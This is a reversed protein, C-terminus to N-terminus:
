QVYEYGLSRMYDDEHEFCLPTDTRDEGVRLISDPARQGCFACQHSCHLHCHQCTACWRRNAELCDCPDMLRRDAVKFSHAMVLDAAGCCMCTSKFVKPPKV